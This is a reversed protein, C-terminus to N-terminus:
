WKNSQLSTFNHARTSWIVDNTMVKYENWQTRLSYYSYFFYHLWLSIVSFFWQNGQLKLFISTLYWIRIKYVFKYVKKVDNLENEVCYTLDFTFSIFQFLTTPRVIVLLRCLLIILRSLFDGLYIRVMRMSILQSITPWM